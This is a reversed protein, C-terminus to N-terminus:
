RDTTEGALTDASVLPMEIAESDPDTEFPLRYSVESEIRAEDIPGFSALVVGPSEVFKAKAFNSGIAYTDKGMPRLLSDKSRDVAKQVSKPERLIAWCVTASRCSDIFHTLARTDFPPRSYSLALKFM